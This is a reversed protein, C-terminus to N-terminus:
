FRDYGFGDDEREPVPRKEPIESPDPLNGQRANELLVQARREASSGMGELYILDDCVEHLVHELVNKPLPRGHMKKQHVMEQMRKQVLVTLPYRGGAKEIAQELLKNKM